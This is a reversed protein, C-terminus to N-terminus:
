LSVLFIRWLCGMVNGVTLYNLSYVGNLLHRISCVSLSVLCVLHFGYCHPILMGQLYDLRSYVAQERKVLDEAFNLYELQESPPGPGRFSQGFRDSIGFGEDDDEIEGIDFFREDYLKLCLTESCGEVRVLFIQSFSTRKAHKIEVIELRILSGRELAVDVDFNRPRPNRMVISKTHEPLPIANYCSRHPLYRKFFANPAAKLKAGLCIPNKLAKERCQTKWKLFQKYLEWTRQMSYLDFSSFSAAPYPTVTGNSVQLPIPKISEIDIKSPHLNLAGRCIPPWSATSLPWKRRNILVCRLVCTLLLRLSHDQISSIELYMLEEDPFFYGHATYDQILSQNEDTIIGYPAGLDKQIDQLAHFASIFRPSASLKNASM